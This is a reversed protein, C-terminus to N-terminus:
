STSTLIQIMEILKILHMNKKTKQKAKKQKNLEKEFCGIMYRKMKRYYIFEDYNCSQVSSLMQM